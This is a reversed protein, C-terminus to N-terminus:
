NPFCLGRTTLPIVWTAALEVSPPRSLRASAQLQVPRPAGPLAQNCRDLALSKGLCQSPQLSILPLPAALGVGEGEPPTAALPVVLTCAAPTGLGLGRRWAGGPGAGRAKGDWSQSWRSSIAWLIETLATSGTIRSSTRLVPPSRPAPRPPVPPCRSKSCRRRPVGSSAAAAPARAAQRRRCCPLSLLRGEARVRGGGRQAAARRRARSRPRASIGSVALVPAPSGPAVALRCLGPLSGCLEPARGRAGAAGGGHRGGAQGALGRGTSERGPQPQRLAM